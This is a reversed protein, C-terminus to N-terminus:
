LDVQCHGEGDVHGLTQSLHRVFGGLDVVDGYQGVQYGTPALPVASLEDLTVAGDDDADSAVFLEGRVEADENELGDYFLHDGHITLQTTGAGGAPLTLGALTCGYTTDTDFDWAFTVSGTECAVTGAVSVSPGDGPAVRFHARDYFGSPVDGTAATWPGVETLDRDFPALEVVREGSGDVLAAEAVRVEFRDFSASCGDAFVESPIEEEIFAEGWLEVTWAATGSCAPLAALSVLMSARNM